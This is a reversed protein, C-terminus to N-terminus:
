HNDWYYAVKSFDRKRSDERRIFFMAMGADGWLIEVGDGAGSSQMELLVIWDDSPGLTRPDSQVPSAYGGVKALSHRYAFADYQAYVASAKDGFQQFFEYAPKGFVANFRYDSALVPEASSEFSLKAEDGIPLPWEPKVLPAANAKEGDQPIRAHYVARFFRQSQLSQFYRSENFPKGDYQLSGWIHERSEEGSIYFQLIGTDPYDTLKPMEAFNLQALLVLSKGNVDRPYEVDKPWYPRGLFKSALPDTGAQKTAKIRVFELKSKEIQGRYSEMEPPFLGPVPPVYKIKAQPPLAVQKNEPKSCASAALVIGFAVISLRISM